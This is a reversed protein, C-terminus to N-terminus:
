RESGKNWYKILADGIYIGDEDEWLGRDYYKTGEFAGEEIYKIGKSM